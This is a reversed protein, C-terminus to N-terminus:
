SNAAVFETILAAVRAPDEEHALHGLGALTVRRATPLIALVRAAETPPLTRDGGGVLLLLAATLRPLDRALPELNWNAMMALAGAVHDPSRM